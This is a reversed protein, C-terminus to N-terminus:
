SRQHVREETAEGVDADVRTVEVRAGLDDVRGLALLLADALDELHVGVLLVRDVRDGGTVDVRDDAELVGGRTVRQAVRVVLDHELRHRERLRDDLDRDLRLGLGVLLLQTMAIWFSASSSGVNRVSCFWSVPWVTMLPM